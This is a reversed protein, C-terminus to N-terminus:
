VQGAPLYVQILTGKEVESQIKLEGGWRQILQYVLNLGLGTGAEGATGKQSALSGKQRFEALQEATMGSGTDSIEIQLQDAEQHAHLRIKGNETFKIANNLLNNLVVRLGNKDAKWSLDESIEVEIENEKASSSEAYMAVVEQGLPKILVQEWQPRYTGLQQLSWQLLNDLLTKLQISQKEVRESIALLKETNGKKLHHSFIKGLAQFGSVPGRLDHAIIGFLRDKTNNLDQLEAAQSELQLKSSRLRVFLYGVALAALGLIIALALFFNSRAQTQALELTQIENQQALEKNEAERKKAEYKAELKAVNEGYNKRNVSDKWQAYSLMHQYAEGKKGVASDCSALGRHATAMASLDELKEAIGLLQQYNQEASRFDKKLLDIEGLLQFSRVRAAEINMHAYMADAQLIFSKAEALKGEKLALEGLYANATAVGPPYRDAQAQKLAKQFYEKAEESKDMEQYISGTDIWIMSLYGSPNAQELALVEDAYQLATEFDKRQTYHGLMIKLGQRTATISSSSKGLEIAKVAYHVVSDEFDKVQFCTALKAANEALPQQINLQAYLSEAKKFYYIASDVAFNRYYMGMSNYSKAQQTRDGLEIAKQLVTQRIQHARNPDEYKLLYALYDYNRIMAKKLVDTTDDIIEIAQQIYVKAEAKSIAPISLAMLRYTQSVLFSDGLQRALAQAKKAEELMAPYQNKKYYAGSLKKLVEFRISLSDDATIMSEASLVYTLASDANVKDFANSLQVLHKIKQTRAKSSNYVAKLSDIQTNQAISFLPSLFICALFLTRIRM